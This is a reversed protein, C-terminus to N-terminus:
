VFPVPLPLFLAQFMIAINIMKEPTHCSQEKSLSLLSFQLSQSGFLDTVGTIKAHIM